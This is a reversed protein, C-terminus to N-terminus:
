RIPTIASGLTEMIKLYDDCYLEKYFSLDMKQGDIRCLEEMLFLTLDFEQSLQSKKMARSYNEGMPMIIVCERGDLLKVEGITRM